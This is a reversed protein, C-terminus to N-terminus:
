PNTTSDSSALKAKPNLQGIVLTWKAGSHEDSATAVNSTIALKFVDDATPFIMSFGRDDKAPAAQNKRWTQLHKVRYMNTAVKDSLGVSWDYDDKAVSAG